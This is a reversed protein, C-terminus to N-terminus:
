PQFASHTLLEAGTAKALRGAAGSHDPHTHTVLITHVAGVSIGASRLRRQLSGWAKVGPLGPDVVAYGRRDAIAYCNVHGLGPLDIPLQLRLVGPAVERIDEGAPEREQRVTHQGSQGM